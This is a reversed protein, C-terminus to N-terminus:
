KGCFECYYAQINANEAKSMGIAANKASMWDPYINGKSTKYRCMGKRRKIGM